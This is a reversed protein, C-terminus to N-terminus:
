LLTLGNINNEITNKPDLLVGNLVIYKIKEEEKLIFNAPKGIELINKFKSSVINIPLNIYPKKYKTKIFLKGNKILETALNLTIEKDKELNYILDDTELYLNTCDIEEIGQINILHGIDEIKSVFYPIREKKYYFEERNICIDLVLNTNNIKYNVNRLILDFLFKGNTPINFYINTNVKTYNNFTIYFLSKVILAFTLKRTFAKNFDNKYKGSEILIVPFYKSFNDGFSRPEFDDPYRAVSNPIIKTADQYLLSILKAADIRYNNLTKEEDCVPALFSLTALNNTNGVSWRFDQDHMNFAFHPMISFATNKLAISEPAQLRLFDRNIDIGVANRRNILEAGDPNLMPIFYLTTNHLLQDIFNSYKAFSLFNFFDFFAMTATPEDGHMQSWFLIKKSGMGIKILYIPKGLLSKAIESIQFRKDLKKILPAIDKHEFRKNILNSEYFNQYDNLLDDIDLDNFNM